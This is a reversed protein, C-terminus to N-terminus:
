FLRLLMIGVIIAIIGTVKRLTVKNPATGLLGFHDIIVGMLMQGLMGIITTVAAGLYPMLIINMTVFIVGLIGGIFYLPKLPGLQDHHADVKLRRHFILTLIFLTITGVTFSILSAFFSSHIAQGLTSNITTQLPPGFGFIFGIFLWIYFSWPRSHNRPLQKVYNMLVIGCLLFVIGVLKILTFSEKDAGLWGFTDIAVSMIIQGTVSMVVTLSAGVRPLLLLNGTLFIVGLLGGVFWYFSFHTHAYHSPVFLTPNLILNLLILFLTGTFFSITSAYFSSQTYLSLRSNISTQFPVVMGAIVGLILLLFM